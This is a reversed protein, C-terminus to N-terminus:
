EDIEKAVINLQMDLIMHLEERYRAAAKNNMQQIAVAFCTLSFEFDKILQEESSVKKSDSNKGM